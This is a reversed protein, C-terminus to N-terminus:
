LSEYGSCAKRVYDVITCGNDAPLELGLRGYLHRSIRRELIVSGDFFLEALADHFAELKDPIENRKINARKELHYYFARKVPDGGLISLGEDVAELILQNFERSPKFCSMSRASSGKRM